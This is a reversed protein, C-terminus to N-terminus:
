KMLIMRNTQSYSKGDRALVNLRYFYIGSTFRSGDFTVTFKGAPKAENVLMAMTKGLINYIEMRVMGDTPIQYTIKTSPNFPNPYNQSLAFVAPIVSPSEQVGTTAPGFSIDDIKFTSGTHADSSSSPPIILIEVWASDPAASPSIPVSFQTYSSASTGWSLDGTAIATGNKFLIVAAEIMDGGVPFFKYWGNLAGSATSIPFGSWAMPPIPNGGLTSVVVAGQMSSSGSHADSSQTIPVAFPPINVATWNTPSGLATWSEFGANPIQANSISLAVLCLALFFIIQSMKKM